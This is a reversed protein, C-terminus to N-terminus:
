RQKTLERHNSRGSIVDLGSATKRLLGTTRTPGKRAEVSQGLKRLGAATLPVAIALLAWRGISKWFM